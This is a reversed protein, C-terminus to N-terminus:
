FPQAQLQRSNFVDWPSTIQRDLFDRNTGKWCMLKWITLHIVYLLSHYTLWSIM